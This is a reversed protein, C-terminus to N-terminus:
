RKHSGDKRLIRIAGVAINSDKIIYYDSFPQNMRAIIREVSENAPSTEFDRYKDLLPMFAKIQMEHIASAESNGSKHLSIDM